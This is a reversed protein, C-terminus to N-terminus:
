WKTAAHSLSHAVYFLHTSARTRWWCTVRDQNNNNSSCTRSRINPHSSTTRGVVSAHNFSLWIRRRIYNEAWSTDMARPTAPCSLGPVPTFYDRPHVSYLTQRDSVSTCPYVPESQHPKRRVSYNIAAPRGLLLDTTTVSSTMFHKESYAVVCAVPVPMYPASVQMTHRIDPVLSRSRSRSQGPRAAMIEATAETSQLYSVRHPLNLPSKTSVMTVPLLTSREDCAADAVNPGGNTTM